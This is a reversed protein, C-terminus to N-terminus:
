QLVLARAGNLLEVREHRRLRDLPIQRPRSSGSSDGLHERLRGGVHEELVVHEPRPSERAWCEAIGYLLGELIGATRAAEGATDRVRHWGHLLVTDLFSVVRERVEPELGELWTSAAQRSPESIAFGDDALLRALRTEVSLDAVVTGDFCRRCIEIRARSLRGEGLSAAGAVQIMGLSALATPRLAPPLWAMQQAVFTAPVEGSFVDKIFDHNRIAFEVLPRLSPACLADLIPRCLPIANEVDLGRQTPQFMGFDHMAAAVWLALRTDNSLRLARVRAFCDEIEAATVEGPRELRSLYWALDAAELMDLGLLLLRNHEGYSQQLGNRCRNGRGQRLITHFRILETGQELSHYLELGTLPATGTLFAETRAKTPALEREDLGRM